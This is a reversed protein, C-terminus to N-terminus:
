THVCGGRRARRSSRQRRCAWSSARPRHAPRRGALPSHPRPRPAGLARDRAPPSRALSRQTPALPRTRPGSGPRHTQQKHLRDPEELVNRNGDEDRRITLLTLVNPVRAYLYRFKRWRGQVNVLCRLCCCCSSVGPSPICSLDAPKSVLALKTGATWFLVQWNLAGRDTIINELAASSSQDQGLLRVDTDVGM